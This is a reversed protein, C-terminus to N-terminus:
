LVAEDYIRRVALRSGPLNGCVHLGMRFKLFGMASMQRMLPILIVQKPLAMACVFLGFIVSKGWFLKKALAYGALSSTICTLGMAVVSIFVSNFLWRIAMPM